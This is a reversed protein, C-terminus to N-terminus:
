KLCNCGMRRLSENIAERKAELVKIQSLIVEMEIAAKKKSDELEKALDIKLLEINNKLANLTNTAVKVERNILQAKRIQTEEEKRVSEKVESPSLLRM